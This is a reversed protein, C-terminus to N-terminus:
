LLEGIGPGHLMMSPPRSMSSNLLAEPNAYDLASFSSRPLATGPANTTGSLEMFSNRSAHRFPQTGGALLNQNAALNLM